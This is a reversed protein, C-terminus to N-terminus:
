KINLFLYYKKCIWERDGKELNRGLMGQIKWQGNGTLGNQLHDPDIMTALKRRCWRANMWQVTLTPTRNSILLPM